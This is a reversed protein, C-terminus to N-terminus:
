VMYCVYSSKYQSQATLIDGKVIQVQFFHLHVATKNALFALKAYYGLLFAINKTKKTKKFLINTIQLRFLVTCVTCVQGLHRCYIYKTMVCLKVNVIMQIQEVSLLSM